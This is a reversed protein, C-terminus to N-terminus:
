HENSLVPAPNNTPAVTNNVAVQIGNKLKLQGSTVIEDGEKLGKLVTVQEGRTEGTIVFSQTAILKKDEEKVIYVVSGYPNFAIATQPLTLYREENGTNVTVTAFMGPILQFKANTITAEVQMNRTDVAVVPDITTIKGTFEENPFSDVEVKIAQDLHLKDIVQQPVYFDAYLPDLQQLTVVKDGPNVYQGPNVASIGLRGAFPARIIKKDILAAQSAVQAKTNKLNAQDTDLTAKSVAEAAFQAKDRVYIKGALDANAELAHLQAVDADIDLRVLVDGEKVTAGPKFEITQVMGALESTVNVGKIARLSGVAKLEPQWPSYNVKMTSVQIIKSQRGMFIKLMVSSVIKYIFISGFLIGTVMLMIRMRKKLEPKLAM